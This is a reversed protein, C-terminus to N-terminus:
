PLYCLIIFFFHINSDSNGIEIPDLGTHYAVTLRFGRGFIHMRKAPIKNVFLAPCVYVSVCM